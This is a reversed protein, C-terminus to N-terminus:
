WSFLGRIAKKENNNVVILYWVLIYLAPLMFQLFMNKIDFLLVLMSLIPFLIGRWNYKVDFKKNLKLFVVVSMIFFSLVTAWASGIVGYQPILMINLSINSIAGIARFIPVWNTINNAYIGPLQLVYIGFFFYGFLVIPVIEEAGWFKEGIIYNGSINFRMLDSVWITTTFIVFGILGLFLTTIISFDAKSGEEKIRKLFYPTWGMNFGMVLVLAFIGFKYGASFLGVAEVGKMMDLIYRNSLEMVMTLLGAPLFPIGFKIVKKLIDLDIELFSIRRLIVPSSLIFVSSSAIINAFFVGSIGYNMKVVFIVNLLMTLIVNLLNFSIFATSKNESRLILLHHNWLNDLFILISIASILSSDNVGLIPESIIDKLLFLFGSFILSTCIQLIYISSIYSRRESNDSQVSFKMLATDMGYRYVVLAFGMFAYALSITGYEKPSFTHTYIPLLLFTILRSVVHGFGYILSEKGLIKLSM